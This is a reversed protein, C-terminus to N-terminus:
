YEILLHDAEDTHVSLESEDEMNVEVSSDENRIVLSGNLINAQIEWSFFLSDGQGAQLQMDWTVSSAAANRFDKALDVDSQFYAHLGGAPPPPMEVDIDDVGDTAQERLGLSLDDLTDTTDSVLFNVQYDSSSAIFNAILDTDEEIVFTFPNDTSQEGGTWESFSFGQFPEARVTVTDGSEFSQSGLLSIRGSNPPTISVDFEVPVPEPNKKEM